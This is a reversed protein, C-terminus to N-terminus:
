PRVVPPLPFAPPFHEDDPWESRPISCGADAVSFREFGLSFAPSDDPLTFDGHEPDRFLPDAVLSGADLGKTQWQELTEGHFDFPDGGTRWYLNNTSALQQENWNPSLLAGESWLVINREFTFSLHEEIRSRVIQDTHSFALINNRFTNERGYHQHFSGTWTRYVLNNEALMHSTGEDFYIGWGGYDFSRIDHFFNHHISSGDSVGLTYIGGMDSLVGQGIDYVDNWAVENHHTDSPAYGWSWGMSIGTYYFDRITNHTLLNYPSQGVWVGIGAPHTRGGHEILNDRVVQHSAVLEENDYKTTEGLKIGGAGLDSLVCGEIRNRKCGRGLEIGYGAVHELRCGEFASDRVGAGYIAAPMSAEAQPFTYGQPPTAWNTYALALGRFVIGTVFRGAEPDGRLELLTALRPAIVEVTEPTEGPMPIYTLERTPRDLYWEGPESLAEAVNEVLYRRGEPMAAWWDTSATPGTLTLTRTAEDIAGIRMRSMTWLHFPLVEVDELNRWDARIDGEHFVFRDQGRPKSAETPEAAAEIAYYDLKPLRPRCRRASDVYLSIFRWEETDDASARAPLSTRWRGDAGVTWETLARGGSLVPREGPYAEFVTRSEATGSDEPTFVLPEEMAYTGGRLLVVVPARREPEAARLERVALVARQPTAFPGDTGGALPAEHRGSWADNGNPAVFFEAEAAWGAAIPGASGLTLALLCHLSTRTM